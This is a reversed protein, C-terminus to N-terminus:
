DVCMGGTPTGNEDMWWNCGYHTTQVECVGQRSNAGDVICAGECDSAKRCITGGDAYTKTCVQFNGEGSRVVKGGDAMCQAREAAPMDNPSPADAVCSALLPAFILAVGLRAAWGGGIVWGGFFAAKQTM